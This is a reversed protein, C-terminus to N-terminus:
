ALLGAIVIGVLSGVVALWGVVSVVGRVRREALMRDSRVEGPSFRAHSANHRASRGVTDLVTRVWRWLKLSAFDADGRLYFLMRDGTFEVDASPAIDILLAMVNPTLVYLANARVDPAAATRFYRDFDGELTITNSLDAPVSNGLRFRKARSELFVHPMPRPLRVELLTWDVGLRGDGPNDVRAKALRFPIPDHGSIPHQVKWSTADAFLLGAPREAPINGRIRVESDYRLGNARAFQAVRYEDYLEALRPPLIGVHALLALIWGGVIVGGLFGPPEWGAVRAISFALLATLLGPILALLGTVIGGIIPRWTWFGAVETKDIWYQHTGSTDFGPELASVDWPQDQTGSV